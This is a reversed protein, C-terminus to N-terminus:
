ADAGGAGLAAELQARLAEDGLAGDLASIPCVCHAVNSDQLGAAAAGSAASGAPKGASGAM